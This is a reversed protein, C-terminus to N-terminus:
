TKILHSTNVTKPYCNVRKNVEWFCLDVSFSPCPSKSIWTIKECKVLSKYLKLNLSALTSLTSVNVFELGAELILALMVDLFFDSVEIRCKGLLFGECLCDDLIVMWRVFSTLATPDSTLWFLCQLQIVLWDAKTDVRINDPCCIAAPAEYLLGIALRWGQWDSVWVGWLCGDIIIPRPFMGPSGSLNIWVSLFAVILTVIISKHFFLIM